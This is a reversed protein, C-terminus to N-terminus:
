NKDSFYQNLGNYIAQAVKTRFSAQEVVAEEQPNSLFGLEILTSPESNTRLVHLDNFEVGRDDLGTTDILSRHIASALPEDKAKQYYFNSLGRVYSYQSYNYHLSLFADAQHSDSIDVRKQLTLYEDSSRTLIVKAGAQQLKKAVEEATLLTLKKEPVGNISTTGDDKGGHGPDIVITKGSLQNQISPQKDSTASIEQNTSVYAESIWGEKGNINIKAWGNKSDLITVKAGDSLKNIITNSTGPQERVNLIPAQVTATQSTQEKKPNKQTVKSAVWSKIKQLFQENNHLTETTSASSQEGTQSQQKNSQQKENMKEKSVSKLSETQQTTKNVLWDAVWGIRKESLQIQDWDGDEKVITYSEGEHIKAIVPYNTGPNERVNLIPVNVTAVKSENALSRHSFVLSLLLIFLFLALCRLTWYLGKSNLSDIIQQM